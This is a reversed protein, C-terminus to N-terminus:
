RAVGLQQVIAGLLAQEAHELPGELVCGAALVHGGGGFGRAVENVDFDRKARLSVRINGEVSERLIFLVQVGAIKRMEEIIGEADDETAGAEAFMSLPISTWAVRGDAELRMRSLAMGALRVAGATQREYISELIGPFDIGTAVLDSAIALTRSTTAPYRFFGTDTVLAAYLTSATERDVEVGFHAHLMYVLEGTAASAVDVWNHTGFRKNSIHHDLNVFPRMHQIQPGLTGLRDFDAADLTVVGCNAPLNPPPAGISVEAAGPMFAFRDMVPDACALWVQRGMRRLLRAMALSSGLTDADPKMHPCVLWADVERFCDLWARAPAEIDAAYSGSLNPTAVPNVPQNNPPRL